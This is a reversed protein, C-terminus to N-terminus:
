AGSSALRRTVRPRSMAEMIMNAVHTAGSNGVLESSWGVSAPRAIPLAKALARVYRNQAEADEEFRSIAASVRAVAEPEPLYAPLEFDPYIDRWHRGQFSRNGNLFFDAQLQQSYNQPPLLWTPANSALAEYAGTLGPSLLVNRAKAMEEVHRARPAFGFECRSDRFERSLADMVRTSGRFLYKDFAPAREFASLLLRTMVWAYRNTEGPIILKSSMGGYSIHCDGNRERSSGPRILPGVVRFDAIGGGIRRRNEEIGSFSQAVYIASRAIEPDIEDWMWFLTDLYLVPVGVELAYRASIPNTNSVFLACKQFLAHHQALQDRDETDCTIQACKPDYDAMFEATTGSSLLILDLESTPLEDLVVQLTSAPGFCFPAADLLIMPKSM